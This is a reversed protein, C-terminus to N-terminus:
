GKRARLHNDRLHLCCGGELALQGGLALGVLVDPTIRPPDNLGDHPVISDNPEPLTLSFSSAPPPADQILLFISITCGWAGV